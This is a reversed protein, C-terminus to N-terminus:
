PNVTTATSTSTSVGLAQLYKEGVDKYQPILEILEKIRSAAIDIRGASVYANIAEERNRVWGDVRESHKTQIYAQYIRPDSIRDLNALMEDVSNTKATKLSAFLNDSVDLKNAYIASLSYLLASEGSSTALNYATKFQELASDYKATQIYLYGLQYRLTQKSPSLEVAKKLHIEAEDTNGVNQLFAGYFLRVRADNPTQEIQKKYESAVLDYFKKKDADPIQQISFIQLSTNSLQERGEQQGIYGKNFVAVFADYNPTVGTKADPQHSIATILDHSATYPAYVAFYLSFIAFVGAVVPILMALTSEKEVERVATAEHESKKTSIRESTLALISFFIIYSTISDFVFFNHIFYAMLLATFIVREEFSFILNGNQRKYWLAYVIVGYLSLYSLLGLFGGATLWDFFVNHARDFWQEQNYLSPDYYKSFVYGFNDQGWGLLPHEKTGQWAMAWIGTRAKGETQLLESPSTTFVVAFRKLLPSSQIVQSDKFIMLGGVFGVILVVITLGAMKLKRARKEFVAFMLAAFVIGVAFGLMAGRTGTHFLIYFNFLSIAVYLVIAVISPIQHKEEDYESDGHFEHTEKFSRRLIRVSLYIALFISLMAFVGVYTSNGLAGDLRYNSLRTYYDQLAGSGLKTIEGLLTQGQSIRHGLVQLGITDKARSLADLGVFLSSILTTQMLRRWIMEKNILASLLIFYAFLHLFTIYGEMREFNSWFSKSPSAGFIDAVCIIAMFAFLAVSVLNVKPIYQKYADASKANFLCDLILWAYLILGIDVLLRFLENKGTIFPFYAADDVFLGVFPVLLLVSLITGRLFSRLNM